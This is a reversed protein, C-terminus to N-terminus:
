KRVREYNFKRRSYSLFLYSVIITSLSILIILPSNYKEPKVELLYLFWSTLEKDFGTLGHILGIPTSMYYWKLDYLNMNM